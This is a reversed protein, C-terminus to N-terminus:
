ASLSFRTVCRLESVARVADFGYAPSRTLEAMERWRVLCLGDEADCGDAPRVSRVGVNSAEQPIDATTRPLWPTGFGFIDLCGAQRADSRELGCHLQRRLLRRGAILTRSIGYPSMSSETRATSAQRHSNKQDLVFGLRGTQQGFAKRSCAYATSM